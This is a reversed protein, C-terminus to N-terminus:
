IAEAFKPELRKFAALGLGLVLAAVVASYATWFPDLGRHYVITAALGEL